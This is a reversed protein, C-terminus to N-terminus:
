KAPARSLMGRVPESVGLISAGVFAPQPGHEDWVAGPPYIAITDWAYEDKVFHEEGVIAHARFQPQLAKSVLHDRDFFQAARHDDIQKLSSDPPLTLDSFIIPEWVVFVKIQAVPLARFM